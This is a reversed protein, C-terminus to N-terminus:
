YFKKIIKEVEEPPSRIDIQRTLRRLLSFLSQSRAPSVNRRIKIFYSYRDPVSADRLAAFGGVDARPTEMKTEFCEFCESKSFDKNKQIFRQLSPVVLKVAEDGLADRNRADDPLVRVLKHREALEDLLDYFRTFKEKVSM